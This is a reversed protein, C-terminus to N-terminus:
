QLNCRSYTHEVVRLIRSLMMQSQLREGEVVRSVCWSYAQVRLGCHRSGNLWSIRKEEVVQVLLSCQGLIHARM